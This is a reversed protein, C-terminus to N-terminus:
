SEDGGCDMPVVNSVGHLRPRFDKVAKREQALARRQALAAREHRVSTNVVGVYYGILYAGTLAAGVALGTLLATM